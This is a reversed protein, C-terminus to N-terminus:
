MHKEIRSQEARLVHHMRMRKAISMSERALPSIFDSAFRALTSWTGNFLSARLFFVPISHFFLHARCSWVFSYLSRTLPQFSSLLPVPTRLHPGSTFPLCLCTSLSSDLPFVIPSPSTSAVQKLHGSLSHRRSCPRQPTPEIIMMSREGTDRRDIGRTVM